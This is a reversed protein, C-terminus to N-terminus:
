RSENLKEIKFKRYKNGYIFHENFIKESMGYVGYPTTNNESNVYISKKNFSDITYEKGKINCIVVTNKPYFVFMDEGTFQELEWKSNLEWLYTLDKICYIIDGEKM